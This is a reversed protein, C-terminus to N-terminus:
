FLYIFYFYFTTRGKEGVIIFKLKKRSLQLNNFIGILQHYKM